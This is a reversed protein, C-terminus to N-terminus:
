RGVSIPQAISCIKQEVPTSSDVVGQYGESNSFMFPQGPDNWFHYNIYAVLEGQDDVAKVTVDFRRFAPRGSVVTETMVYAHLGSPYTGAYRDEAFVKSSGGAFVIAFMLFFAWLIKNAHFFKVM